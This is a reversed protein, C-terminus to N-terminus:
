SPHDSTRFNIILSFNWILYISIRNLFENKVLVCDKPTNNSHYNYMANNIWMDGHTLVCFDDEENDYVQCANEIFSSRLNKMKKAYHEYGFWREVENCMADWFNYFIFHFVSTVRNFMGFRCSKYIEKDNEYVVASAAHSQALRELFLKLHAKDPLGKLRDLMVYKKLNLDEMVITDNEKDVSVTEPFFDGKIGISLLLHKIKPLVNEYMDIEKTSIDYMKTTRSSLDDWVQTKVIFSTTNETDFKSSTYNVFVRLIIGVYGDGKGSAPKVTLLTIKCTDDNFYKQLRPEFYEINILPFEFSENQSNDLKECKKIKETTQELIVTSGQSMKDQTINVTVCRNDKFETITRVQSITFSFFSQRKDKIRQIFNSFTM